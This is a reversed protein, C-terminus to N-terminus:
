EGLPVELQRSPRRANHDITGKVGREVSEDLVGPGFWTEVDRSM